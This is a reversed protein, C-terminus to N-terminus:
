YLKGYKYKYLVKHFFVCMMRVLFHFLLVSDSCFRFAIENIDSVEAVYDSKSDLQANVSVGM